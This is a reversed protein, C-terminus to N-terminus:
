RFGYLRQPNDVLIKHMLDAAPAIQELAQVLVGDDPIHTHNPHPWDSGWVCQDPYTQVLLRALAIGRAYPRKPDEFPVSQDIRDIGSVKVHFLPNKLLKLLAAFDAHHEGLKADVRAMHDIVVPVASQEFSKSLEHILSSEFHVQLHMGVSKLRHTLAIIDKLRQVGAEGQAGGLHKMFNFRVGKFGIEALRQLEVDSVHPSLLAVGLYNGGGAKVADEVVRNDLAHVMSQVIVCREIGMQKHWKFLLEKPADQPTSQREPDFPFVARPGFVHVHADCAGKPLKLTPQTPNPNFTLAIKLTDSM